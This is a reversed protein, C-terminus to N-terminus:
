WYVVKIGDAQEVVTGRKMRRQVIRVVPCGVAERANPGGPWKLHGLYRLAQTESIRCDGRRWEQLDPLYQILDPTGQGPSPRNAYQARLPAHRQPATRRASRKRARHKNKFPGTHQHSKLAAARAEAPTWRHSTRRAAATRGGKASM